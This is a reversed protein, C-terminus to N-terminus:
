KDKFINLPVVPLNKSVILFLQFHVFKQRFFSIEQMSNLNQLTVKDTTLKIKRTDIQILESSCEFLIANM